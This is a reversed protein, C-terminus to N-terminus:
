ADSSVLFGGNTKIKSVKQRDDQSSPFVAGIPPWDPADFRQLAMEFEPRKRALEVLNSRFEGFGDKVDLM